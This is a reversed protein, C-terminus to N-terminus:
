KGHGASAEAAARIGAQAALAAEISLPEPAGILDSQAGLDVLHRDASTLVIGPVVRRTM